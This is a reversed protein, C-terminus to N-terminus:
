WWSLDPNNTAWQAFLPYEGKISVRENCWNFTIPVGVKSAPEGKVATLPINKGNKTVVVPISKADSYYTSLKFEQAPKTAGKVASNTNVMIDRAVGFKDHVENGDIYLPLTGGAAQLKVWTEGNEIAVDFVVDNFDFDTDSDEGLTLDEGIVRITYNHTPPTVGKGPVIKVIWDNYILDRKVQENPNQGEASFDFGVYYNGNVEEMRFYYFVHGNDTSSKYGFRQTSSNVMLQISGDSNNFNYVHDDHNTVVTAQWNNWDPYITEEKGVPDYACLWDMQNGGIVTGGNGAVYSATGKWVQQVFFCDWEVLSTYEEKGKQNFVQLVANIEAQTIAGPVNYGNAEWENSNPDVGRTGAVSFDTDFGWTQNPAIEGGVYDKFAKNYEEVIAKEPDYAEFDNKTCGVLAAFMAM